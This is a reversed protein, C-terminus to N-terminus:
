PATYTAETVVGDVIAGITATGGNDLTIIDGVFLVAATEGEAGVVTVPTGQAGNTVPTGDPVLTVPTAM